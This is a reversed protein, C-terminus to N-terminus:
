FESCIYYYLLCLDTVYNINGITSILPLEEIEISGLSDILTFIAELYNKSIILGISILSQIMVRVKNSHHFPNMLRSQYYRVKKMQRWYEGGCM